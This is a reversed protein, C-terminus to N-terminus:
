IRMEHLHYLAYLLVNIVGKIVHLLVYSFL